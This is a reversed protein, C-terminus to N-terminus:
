VTGGFQRQSSNSHAREVTLKMLLSTVLGFDCLDHLKIGLEKLSVNWEDHCVHMAWNGMEHKLRRAKSILLVPPYSEDLILVDLLLFVMMM